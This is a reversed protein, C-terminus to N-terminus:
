PISTHAQGDLPRAFGVDLTVVVLVARAAHGVLGCFWAGVDDVDLKGVLMHWTHIVVYVKAEMLLWLMFYVSILSFLVHAGKYFMQLKECFKSM